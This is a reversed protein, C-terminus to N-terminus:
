INFVVKALRDWGNGLALLCAAVYVVIMAVYGAAFPKDLTKRLISRVLLFIAGLAFIPGFIGRWGSGGFIPLLVPMRVTAGALISLSALLMMARHKDPRRRWVVGALVFCTFLAIESLMVLMFQRYQMGWFQFNADLRVSRVAIMFGTITVGSAIAVGGWGLKMHISRRRSSILWAQLLFIVVWATMFAGHFAVLTFIEPAIKRGAMGEARAYYPLFGSIMLTLMVLGAATHFYRQLASLPTIKPRPPPASSRLETTKTM